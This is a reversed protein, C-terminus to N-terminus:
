QPKREKRFDEPLASLIKNVAQEHSQDALLVTIDAYKEYLGIRKEYLDELTCGPEIVVGRGTIDTLRGKLIELPVCLYLVIGACGLHTMASDYYVASGGTAIVAGRLALTELYDREIQCFGDLGYNDILENLNRGAAAQIAVDTDLFGMGLAKALLVGVTSKGAGPMGILILNSKDM